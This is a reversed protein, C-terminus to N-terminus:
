KEEKVIWCLTEQGELNIRLIHLEENPQWENLIRVRYAHSAPRSPKGYMKKELWTRLNSELARLSTCHRLMRLEHGLQLHLTSSLNKTPTINLM